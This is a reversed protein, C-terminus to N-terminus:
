KAIGGPLSISSDPKLRGALWRLPRTLRWSFSSDRWGLEFNAGDLLKRQRNREGVLCEMQRLLPALRDFEEAWSASEPLGTFIGETASGKLAEYIETVLPHVGSSPRGRQVDHRLDKTLFDSEYRSIEQEDATLCLLQSIRTLEGRPNEVLRDYDVVLTKCAPPRAAVAIIHTLWLLQGHVPDIHNRKRLSEAVSTPHRVVFVCGAEAQVRPLVERWFLWLKATRPDKFAFTTHRDVKRQLLAAARETFGRERLAAVESPGISKLEALKTGLFSFLEENFQVVELDEWYGRPNDAGPPMLDGGLDAGLAALGRAVASTGSRHMGLVVVLKKPANETPKM